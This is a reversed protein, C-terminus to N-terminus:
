GRWNRSACVPGLVFIWGFALAVLRAGHRQLFALAAPKQLLLAAASGALIGDAGTHLMMVLYGRLGPFLAYSGVRLAPELALFALLFLLGRRPGLLVLLPPWFLYFQAEVALSWTHGLVWLDQTPPPLVTLAYNWTFTAAAWWHPWSLAGADFLGWLAIAALFAYYAPFIRVARRRWFARLDVRGTESTERLLLSTILYGSLAFFIRVGQQPNAFAELWGRVSASLPRYNAAAHGAVVMLIALGRLGDLARLRNM